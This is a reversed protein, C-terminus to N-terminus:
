DIQIERRQNVGNEIVPAFWHRPVIRYVAYPPIPLQWAKIQKEVIEPYPAELKEASAIIQLGAIRITPAPEYEPQIGDFIAVAVNGNKELQRAHETDTPSFFYLNLADDSIYELPAVWPDHGDTTALTLYRNRRVLQRAFEQYTDAM